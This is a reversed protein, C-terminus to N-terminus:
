DRPMFVSYDPGTMVPRYQAGLVRMFAPTFRGEDRGGMQIAAYHHASLMALVDAERVRGILIQDRVYYPDYDMTKGAEYCLLLDECIAPGQAARLLAVAQRAAATTAPLRGWGRVDDHLQFPVMAAGALTAVVLTAKFRGGERELWCIGTVACFVDAILAPYFINAAVGDGGSFYVATVNTFVLLTFLFGRWPVTKGRRLVVAGIGLAVAFHLLYHGTETGLNRVGYARPRLLEAFFYGGDLRYSLVLLLGAAVAGVGTFVAFGRWNRAMLLHVAVSLPFAVLDHKTFLSLAFAVAAGGVWRPGRAYDVWHPGRVYDVWHPGCVYAFLGLMALAVGLLEPDDVARGAGNFAGIGAFLLLGAYVAGARTETVRRMIGGALVCVAVLSAFCVARGALVMRGKVGGILGIVHFSLFPYNTSWLAAPGGYLPLKQVTM